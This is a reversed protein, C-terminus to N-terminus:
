VACCDGGGAGVACDLEPVRCGSLQLRCQVSVLVDDRCDRVRFVACVECGRAEVASCLEPVGLPLQHLREPSMSTRHQSNCEIGVAAREGGASDVAGNTRPFERTLRWWISPNLARM